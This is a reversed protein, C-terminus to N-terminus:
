PSATGFLGLTRTTHQRGRGGGLGRLDNQSNPHGEAGEEGRLVAVSCAGLEPLPSPFGPGKGQLCGRSLLATLSTCPARHRPPPVNHKGLWQVGQAESTPAPTKLGVSYFLFPNLAEFKEQSVQLRPLTAYLPGTGLYGLGFGWSTRPCSGQRTDAARLERHGHKHEM